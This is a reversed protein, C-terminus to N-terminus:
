VGTWDEFHGKVSAKKIFRLFFDRAIQVKYGNVRQSSKLM